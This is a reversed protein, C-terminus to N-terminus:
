YVQYDQTKLIIILSISQSNYKDINKIIDFIKQKIIKLESKVYRENFHIVDDDPQFFPDSSNNVAKFYESFSNIDTYCRKNFYFLWRRRKIIELLM